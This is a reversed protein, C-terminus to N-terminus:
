DDKKYDAIMKRFKYYGLEWGPVDQWFIKYWNMRDGCGDTDEIEEIKSIYEPYRKVLYEAIEEDYLAYLIDELEPKDNIIDEILAELSSRQGFFGVQYVDEYSKKLYPVFDVNDLEM